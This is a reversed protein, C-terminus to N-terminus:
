RNTKKRFYLFISFLAFFCLSFILVSPFWAFSDIFVYNELEAGSLAPKEINIIGRIHALLISYLVGLLGYSLNFALGKFSLITARKKSDAINNLYFSVFFGTMSMTGFLVLAPVLGFYPTFFKMGYLGAFASGSIILCIGPPSCTKTLKLCIKPIIFGTVAVLAGILGFSAEPLDILRYYQSSLTIVMRIIGDFILGAAIVALAFPTKFIWMGTQFTIKFAQKVSPIESKRNKKDNYEPDDMLIATILTIVAMGLTLFLPFRMTSSQTIGAASIGILKAAKQVLTHDYVAAGIIMSIFSGVAQLRMQVDLVKGWDKPNGEKKLADYALAEDAGSASAEALGSLVRNVAFVSFLVEPTFWSFSGARPAFCLIGVEATMISGTAILLTRRGLIDALAGSPVEATVIVAAWIANLLAFQAVSLGFDLFLITFVPYYFRSNFFVRFIIFLRVNKISFPSKEDATSGTM